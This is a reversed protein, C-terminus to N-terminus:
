SVVTGEPDIFSIGTTYIGVSASVEDEDDDTDDKPPHDEKVL